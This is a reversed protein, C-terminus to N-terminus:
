FLPAIQGLFINSSFKLRKSVTCTHAPCVSLCVSVPRCCEYLIARAGIGHHYLNRKFIRTDVDPM